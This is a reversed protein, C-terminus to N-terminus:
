TVPAPTEVRARFESPTARAHKKFAQNFTSKSAFGADMAIALIKLRTADGAEIRRQVERVRYGNVFDYFTQGVQANLVESLKHPSTALRGALDALTLESDRWPQAEDMEHRLAAALERAESDGLGSREYRVGEPATQASPIPMEATQYRFVEPQKLGMYGIAYILVAVALSIHEDRLHEGFDTIRMTTALSWIVAAAGAFWLLWRLNVRATNSYNEEVTRRHRRLYLLTAVSYVIGSAYKTPDVIRMNRPVDGGVIRDFLAIKEPGSMMYFPALVVLVVAPVAFHLVDAKRLRRARDSATVAYLYVLPGFLWPMLYSVGFFQSYVKLLGTAYYVSAALYLTFALMLAGLLRNATRNSRQSFLVGALLLGQLSGVLAVLQSWDLSLRPM